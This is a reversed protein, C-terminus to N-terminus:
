SAVFGAPPSKRRRRSVAPQQIRNLRMTGVTMRDHDSFYSGDACTEAHDFLLRCVGTHRKIEPEGVGPENDYHYILEYEGTGRRRLSAALSESRSKDTKLVVSMRSWSQRITIVGNWDYNKPQGNKFETKGTCAWEGNLDPVLLLRRAPRWRWLKADFGLYLFGFLSISSVGVLSLGLFTNMAQLWHGVIPALSSALIMIGAYLRWPRPKSTAYPHM